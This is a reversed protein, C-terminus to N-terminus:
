LCCAARHPMQAGCSSSSSLAPTPSQNAGTWTRLVSRWSVYICPLWSVKHLVLWAAVSQMVGQASHAYPQFIIYTFLSFKPVGQAAGALRRREARHVHCGLGPRVALHAADVEAQAAAPPPVSLLVDPMLQCMNTNAPCPLIIALCPM